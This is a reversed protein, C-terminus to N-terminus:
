RVNDKPVFGKYGKDSGELVEIQAGLEDRSVIRVRTGDDFDKAGRNEGLSLISIGFQRQGPDTTHELERRVAVVAQYVQESQYVKVKQQNKVVVLKHSCGAVGIMVLM